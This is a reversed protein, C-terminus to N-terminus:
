NFNILRIYDIRSGYFQNLIRLNSDSERFLVEFIKRVHAHKCAAYYVGTPRTHGAPRLKGVGAIRSAIKVHACFGVRSKSNSRLM